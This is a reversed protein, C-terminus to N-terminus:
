AKPWRRDVIARKESLDWVVIRCGLERYSESAKDACQVAVEPDTHIGVESVEDGVMIVLAYRM